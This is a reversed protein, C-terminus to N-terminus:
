GDEGLASNPNVLMMDTGAAAICAEGTPEAYIVTWTGRDSMYLMMVFGRSDLGIGVQREAYTDALESQMDRLAACPAEDALLPSAMLCLFAAIRIM